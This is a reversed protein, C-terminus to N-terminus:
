HYTNLMLVLKISKSENPTEMITENLTEMITENPTEIITENPTEMITEHPHKWFQKTPHKWQQTPKHGVFCSTPTKKVSSFAWHSTCYQSHYSITCYSDSLKCSANHIMKFIQFYSCSQHSFKYTCFFLIVSVCIIGCPIEVMYIYLTM